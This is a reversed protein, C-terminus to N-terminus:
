NDVTGEDEYKRGRFGLLDEVCVRERGFGLLNKVCLSEIKGREM